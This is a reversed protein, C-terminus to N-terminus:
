AKDMAVDRIAIFAACQITKKSRAEPRPPYEVGGFLPCSPHGCGVNNKREDHEQRPFHNRLKGRIHSPPSTAVPPVSRRGRVGRRIAM